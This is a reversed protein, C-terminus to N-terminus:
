KHPELGSSGYRYPVPRYRMPIDALTIELDILRTELKHLGPIRAQLIRVVIRKRGRRIRLEILDLINVALPAEILGPVVAALRVIAAICKVERLNEFPRTERAAPPSEPRSADEM